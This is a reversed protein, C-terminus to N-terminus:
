CNAGGLMIGEYPGSHDDLNGVFINAVAGTSCNPSTNDHGNCADWKGTAVIHKEGNPHAYGLFRGPLIPIMDKQNTVHSFSPVKSDFYTAFETSGVRPTGYTVGKIAVSSPLNLMFMLADLEAIGQFYFSLVDFNQLLM